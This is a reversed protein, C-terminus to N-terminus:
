RRRRKMVANAEALPKRAPVLAMGLVLAVLALAAAIPWTM